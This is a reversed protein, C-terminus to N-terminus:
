ARAARSSPAARSRGWVAADRDGAGHEIAALVQRRFLPEIPDFAQPARTELGRDWTSKPAM